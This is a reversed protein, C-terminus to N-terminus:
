KRDRKKRDLASQRMKELVEESYVGTKGKNWPIRGIANKKIKERAEPSHTKGKMPNNESMLLSM